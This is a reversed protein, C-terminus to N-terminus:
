TASFPLSMAPILSSPRSFRLCLEHQLYRCFLQGTAKQRFQAHLSRVSETAKSAISINKAKVKELDLM